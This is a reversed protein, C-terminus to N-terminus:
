FLEKALSNIEEQTNGELVDQLKTIIHTRYKDLTHQQKQIITELNTAIITVAVLLKAFDEKSFETNEDSANIKAALEKYDNQLVAATEKVSDTPKEVDKVLIQNAITAATTCIEEFFTLYSKQM